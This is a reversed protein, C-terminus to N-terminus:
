KEFRIEIEYAQLDKLHSYKASLVKDKVSIGAAHVTESDGSVLPHWCPLERGEAVCRYACTAPLWTLRILSVVTIKVCDRNKRTRDKYVRCRCNGIDLHRCAVATIQVEGTDADKLKHLCCIGCGDCLQEWEERTLEDLKKRKWYPTM